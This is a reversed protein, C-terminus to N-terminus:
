EVRGDELVGQNGKVFTESPSMLLLEIRSGMRVLARVLRRM